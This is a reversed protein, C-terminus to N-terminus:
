WPEALAFVSAYSCRSQRYLYCAGLTLRSSWLAPDVPWCRRSGAYVASPCERWGPYCVGSHQAQYEFSSRRLDNSQSQSTCCHSARIMLYISPVSLVRSATKGSGNHHVVATFARGPRQLYLSRDMRSPCSWIDAFIPQQREARVQSRWARRVM